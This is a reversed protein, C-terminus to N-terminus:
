LFWYLLGCLVGAIYGVFVDSPYHIGGVIRILGELMSIALLVVGFVSFFYLVTMSIMVSSFVHRSPMSNGKTDKSILPNEICTEYPRKRNILKRILSVVVFSLAPILICKLVMSRNVFFVYILFVPYLIYYFFTLLVNAQKLITLALPLKRYPASIM